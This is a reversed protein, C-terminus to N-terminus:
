AGSLNSLAASVIPLPCVAPCSVTAAADNTRTQLYADKSKQLRKRRSGEGGVKVLINKIDSHIEYVYFEPSIKDRTPM